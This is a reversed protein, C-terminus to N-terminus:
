IPIEYYNIHRITTRDRWMGDIFEADYDIKLHSGCSPCNIITENGDTEFEDDCVPCAYQKVVM